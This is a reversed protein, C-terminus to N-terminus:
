RWHVRGIAAATLPRVVSARLRIALHDAAGVREAGIIVVEGLRADQHAIDPVVGLPVTEDLLNGAAQKAADVSLHKLACESIPLIDIGRGAPPDLFLHAGAASCFGGLAHTFALDVAPEAM